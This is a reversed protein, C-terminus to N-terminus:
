FASTGAALPHHEDGMNGGMGHKVAEYTAFYVAHAPGPNGDSSPTARNIRHEAGYWGGFDCKIHREMIFWCGGGQINYITCEVLGHLPWGTFPKHSTVADAFMSREVRPDHAARSVKLLDFPYM